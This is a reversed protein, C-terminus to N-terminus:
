PERTAALQPEASVPSMERASTIAREGNETMGATSTNCVGRGRGVLRASRAPHSTASATNVAIKMATEPSSPPRCLYGGVHADHSRITTPAASM